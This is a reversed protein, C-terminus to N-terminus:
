LTIAGRGLKRVDQFGGAFSDRRETETFSVSEPEGLESIPEALLPKMERNEALELPSLAGKQIGKKALLDKGRGDKWDGGDGRKETCAVLTSTADLQAIVGGLDDGLLVFDRSKERPERGFFSIGLVPEAYGPDLDEMGRGKKSLSDHEDISRSDTRGVDVIRGGSQLEKRLTIRRQKERRDVRGQRLDLQFEQPLGSWLERSEEEHHVLDVANGLVVSRLGQTKELSSEAVFDRIHLFNPNETHGGAVPEL